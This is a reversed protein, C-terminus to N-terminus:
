RKSITAQTVGLSETLEEQTQYYDEYLLRTISGTGRFTRFIYAISYNDLQSVARIYNYYWIRGKKTLM